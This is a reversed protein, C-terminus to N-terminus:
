PHGPQQDEYAQPMAGNNKGDPTELVKRPRDSAGVTTVGARIDQLTLLDKKEEVSRKQIKKM